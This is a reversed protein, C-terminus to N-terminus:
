NKVSTLQAIDTLLQNLVLVKNVGPNRVRKVAQIAHQHLQWLTDPLETQSKVQLHLWFQLWKLIKEVQEQWDAALQSPNVRQQIVDQLGTKFVEYSIKQEQQLEELLTLPSSAYLRIFEADVPKDWQTSLWDQTQRIDPIPMTIRECRSIITPLLREAKHSLLMLFTNATPEELTKLLANASSETMTHAAYIILVKAGSLQASGSLKKIAERIQDVGIQKDSVVEHFDPHNGADHLMCAHCVNCRQGNTSNSCLLLSAFQRAFDTKGIGLPGQLLLAHHLKSSQKRAALQEFTPVLWPYM